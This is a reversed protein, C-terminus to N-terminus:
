ADAGRRCLGLSDGATNPRVCHVPEPPVPQLILAIRRTKGYSIALGLNRFTTDVWYYTCVLRFIYSTCGMVTLTDLTFVIVGASYIVKASWPSRSCALREPAQQTRAMVAAYAMLVAAHYFCVAVTIEITSTLDGFAPANVYLFFPSCALEICKWLINIFLCLETLSNLLIQYRRAVDEHHRATERQRASSSFWSFVDM